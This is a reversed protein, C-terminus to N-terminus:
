LLPECSLSRFRQNIIDMSSDRFFSDIINSKSNKINIRFSVRTNRPNSNDPHRQMNM